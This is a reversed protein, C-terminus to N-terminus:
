PRFVTVFGSDGGNGLVHADPPAVVANGWAFSQGGQGASVMGGGRGNGFGVTQGSVFDPRVGLEDDRNGSSFDDGPFGAVEIGFVGDAVAGTAAIRDCGYGLVKAHGGIFDAGPVVDVAVGQVGSACNADVQRQDCTAFLFGPRASGGGLVM